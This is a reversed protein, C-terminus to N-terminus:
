SHAGAAASSVARLVRCCLELTPTPVGLQTGLALIYGLTENVELRRNRDADQLISQRFEPASIRMGEGHAQVARIADDESGEIFARSSFGSNQLTIGHRFAVTATERMVRAVLLATEADSMFRWTPLRTLIALASFGSWGVFKSWESSIIDESAQVELGAGAFADALEAVRPSKGGELEGLVTANAMNYRVAGPLGGHAPLIDGGVMSIAGLTAQAGFV